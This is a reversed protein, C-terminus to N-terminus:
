IWENAYISYAKIIILEKCERTNNKKRRKRGDGALYTRYSFDNKKNKNNNNTHKNSEVNM